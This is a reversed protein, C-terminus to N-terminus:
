RFVVHPAIQIARIAGIREVDVLDAAETFREQERRAMIHNAISPGVGPLLDLTSRTAHNIDIRYPPISDEDTSPLPHSWWWFGMVTGLSLSGLVFVAWAGGSRDADCVGDRSDGGGRTTDNVPGM